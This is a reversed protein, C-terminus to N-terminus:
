VTLVIFVAWVYFAGQLHGIGNPVVKFVRLLLM